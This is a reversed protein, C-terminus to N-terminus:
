PAGVEAPLSAPGVPPAPLVWRCEGTRADFVAHHEGRRGAEDFALHVWERWTDVGAGRATGPSPPGAAGAEPPPLSDAFARFAAFVEMRESESMGGPDHLARGGFRGSVRAGSRRPGRELGFRQPARGLPSAATLVFPFVAVQEVRGPNERLLDRLRGLQRLASVATTGPLDPILNIVAPIGSRLLNRLFSEAESATHGKCMRSLVADDLSEVGVTLRACGARRLRELLAPSYRPDARVFAIWQVDLEADLLARAFGGAFGPELADCALEFRHIGHRSVLRRIDEAVQAPERTERRTYLQQYDCYACAGWYCRRAAVVTLRDIARARLQRPDYRPTALRSLVPPPRPGTRRRATSDLQVLNPVTEALRSTPRGARLEHYLARVAAEGEGAVLGDVGLSLIRRQRSTPLLSIVAGGLFVPAGTRARIWRAARVASDLQSAFAVTIGAFLPPPRRDMHRRLADLEVEAMAESRLGREAEPAMLWVASPLTFQRAVPDHRTRELLRRAARRVILDHYRHLERASLAGLQELAAIRREQGAARERWFPSRPLHEMATANLDLCVPRAGAAHLEGALVALAPYIASYASASWPPFILWVDGRTM